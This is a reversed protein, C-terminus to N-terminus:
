RVTSPQEINMEEILRSEENEKQNKWLFVARYIVLGLTYIIILFLIGTLAPETPYLLTIGIATMLFTGYYKGVPDYIPGRKSSSIVFFLFVLGLVLLIWSPYFQKLSFASFSTLVLVFDAVPDLYAELPTSSAVVHWKALLGDLIDSAFAALFLVLAIETFDLMYAFFFAPTLLIRLIIVLYPSRKQRNDIETLADDGV